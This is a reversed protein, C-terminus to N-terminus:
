LQKFLNVINGDIDNIVEIQAPDKALTLAASGCFVEAWANHPPLNKSIRYALRQKSGYYGFPSDTGKPASFSSTPPAEIFSELSKLNTPQNGIVLNPEKSFVISM